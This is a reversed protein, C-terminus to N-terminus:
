YYNHSDKCSTADKYTKNEAYASWLHRTSLNLPTPITPAIKSYILSQSVHLSYLTTKRPMLKLQTFSHHKELIPKVTRATKSM